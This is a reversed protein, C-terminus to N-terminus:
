LTNRTTNKVFHTTDYRISLHNQSPSVGYHFKRHAYKQSKEIPCSNRVTARSLVPEFEDCSCLSSTSGGTTAEAAMDLPSWDTSGESLSSFCFGNFFSLVEFPLFVNSLQTSTILLIGLTVVVPSPGLPLLISPNKYLYVLPCTLMTQTQWPLKREGASNTLCAPPLSTVFGILCM